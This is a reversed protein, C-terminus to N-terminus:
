VIKPWITEPCAMRPFITSTGTLRGVGAVGALRVIVNADRGDREGRGIGVAHQQKVGGLCLLAFGGSIVTM